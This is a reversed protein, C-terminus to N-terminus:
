AARKAASPRVAVLAELAKTLQDKLLANIRELEEIRQELEQM